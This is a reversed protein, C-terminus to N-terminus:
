REKRRREMTVRIHANEEKLALIDEYLEDEEADYRKFLVDMVQILGRMKELIGALAADFEQYREKGEICMSFWHHKTDTMFQKAEETTMDCLHEILNSREVMKVILLLRDQLVMEYNQNSEQIKHVFLRVDEPVGIMDSLSEMDYEGYLEVLIHLMSASLILDMEEETIPLRLEILLWVMALGHILYEQVMPVNVKVDMHSAKIYELSACTNKYNHSVAYAYDREFLMDIKTKLMM